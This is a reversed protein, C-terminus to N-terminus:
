LSKGDFKHAAELDHVDIGEICRANIVCSDNGESDKGWGITRV